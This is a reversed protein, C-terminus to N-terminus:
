GVTFTLGDAVAASDLIIVMQNAQFAIRVGGVQRAVTSSLQEATQM